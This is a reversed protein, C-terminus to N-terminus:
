GGVTKIELPPPARLPGPEVVVTPSNEYDMLKEIVSICEACTDFYIIYTSDYKDNITLQYKELGGRYKLRLENIDKSSLEIRM